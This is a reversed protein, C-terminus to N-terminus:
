LVTKCSLHSEVAMVIKLISCFWVYAPKVATVPVPWVSTLPWKFVLEKLIERINKQFRAINNEDLKSGGLCYNFSMRIKNVQLHCFNVLDPRPAHTNSIVAGAWM